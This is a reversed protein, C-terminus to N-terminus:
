SRGPGTLRAHREAAARRKALADERALREAKLKLGEQGAIGLVGAVLEVTRVSDDNAPIAYTLARPDMDTDAIGITPIDNQTAERLAHANITPSLLVLLSPKYAGIPTQTQTQSTTIVSSPWAFVQSANSITGPIWKTVGYGNPGLRRANEHVAKHTGKLSGVFVVIGDREVTSRVVQAARRLAPLSQRLDIYSIGSRTGYVTTRAAAKHTFQTSHGLHAGAAVLHSLTVSPPAPPRRLSDRPQWTTERTQTSGLGELLDATAKRAKRQEISELVGQRAAQRARQRPTLPSPRATDRQAATQQEVPALAVNEVM